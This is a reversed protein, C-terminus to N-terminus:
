DPKSLKEAAQYFQQLIQNTYQEDDSLDASGQVELASLREGLVAILTSLVQPEQTNLNKFYRLFHWSREEEDLAFKKFRALIIDVDKNLLEYLSSAKQNM